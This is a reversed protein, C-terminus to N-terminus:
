QSRHQHAIKNAHESAEPDLWITCNQVPNASVIVRQLACPKLAFQGPGVGLGVGPHRVQATLDLAFVTCAPLDLLM